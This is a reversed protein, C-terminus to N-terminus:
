RRKAKKPVSDQLNAVAEQGWLSPVWLRITLNAEVQQLVQRATSHVVVILLGCVQLGACSSSATCGTEVPDWCHVGRCIRALRRRPGAHSTPCAPIDLAKSRTSITIVDNM